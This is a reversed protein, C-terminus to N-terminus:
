STIDINLSTRKERDSIVPFSRFADFRMSRKVVINQIDYSYKHRYNRLDISKGM